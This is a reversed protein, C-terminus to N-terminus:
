KEPVMALVSELSMGGDALCPKETIFGWSSCSTLTPYFNDFAEANKLIIHEPKGGRTRVFILAVIYGKGLQIRIKNIDSQRTPSNTLPEFAGQVNLPLQQYGARAFANYQSHISYAELTKIVTEVLALDKDLDGTSQDNTLEFLSLLEQKQEKTGICRVAELVGSMEKQLLLANVSEPSFASLRSCFGLYYRKQWSEDYDHYTEQKDVRRDFCQNFHGSSIIQFLESPTTSDDRLFSLTQFAHARPGHVILPADCADLFMTHQAVVDGYKSSIFGNFTVLTAQHLGHQRLKNVLIKDLLRGKQIPPGSLWVNFDPVTLAQQSRMSYPVDANYTSSKQCHRPDHFSVVPCDRHKQLLRQKPEDEMQNYLEFGVEFFTKFMAEIRSGKFFYQRLVENLPQIEDNQSIKFQELQHQHFKDRVKHFDPIIQTGISKLILQHLPIRNLDYIIENEFDESKFWDEPPTDKVKPSVIVRMRGLRHGSECQEIPNKPLSNDAFLQSLSVSANSLSAM